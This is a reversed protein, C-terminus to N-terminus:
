KQHTGLTVAGEIEAAITAALLIRAVCLPNYPKGSLLYTRECLLEEYSGIGGGGLMEDAKGEM